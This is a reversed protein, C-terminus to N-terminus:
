KRWPQAAVPEEWSPIPAQLPEDIWLFAGNVGDDLIRLVLDVAKEPPDGGTEEVWEVWQRHAEGEDGLAAAQDRIDAWMETKVDGPHVVNATVGTGALESALHRTLQNLGAKATAYASGLPGPPHLSAASTLNVIRGWGLEIMGPAFARCTLYPGVLDVEIAEVWRRPDARTVPELPGLVGAANVLVQPPGLESRVRAALREVEDVKSVDCPFREASRAVAALQAGRSELADAIRKGLGRSAGTVVAVKGDLSM